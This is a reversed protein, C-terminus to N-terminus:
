EKSKILFEQILKEDTVESEPIWSSEELDRNAWKVLYEKIDHRIRMNYIYEIERINEMPVSDNVIKLRTLPYANKEM